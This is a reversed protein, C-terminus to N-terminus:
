INICHNLYSDRCAECAGCWYMEEVTVVDDEKFREGKKM